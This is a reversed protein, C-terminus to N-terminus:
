VRVTIWWASKAASVKSCGSSSTRSFGCIPQSQSGSMWFPPTMSLMQTTCQWFLAHKLTQKNSLHVPAGGHLYLITTSNTSPCFLSYDIAIIGPSPHILLFLPLPRLFLPLTGAKSTVPELAMPVPKSTATPHQAPFVHPNVLFDAHRSAYNWPWNRSCETKGTKLSCITQSNCLTELHRPDTLVTPACKKSLKWHAGVTCWFLPGGVSKLKKKLNKKIPQLIDPIIIKKSKKPAAFIM